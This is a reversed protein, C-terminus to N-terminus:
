GYRLGLKKLRAMPKPYCNSWDWGKQDLERDLYRWLSVKYVQKWAKNLKILQADSLPMIINNVTTTECYFNPVGITVTLKVIDSKPNYSDASSGGGSSGGGSSGGGNPSSNEPPKAAICKKKKKDWKGGADTCIKINDKRKKNSIALLVIMFITLGIALSMLKIGTKRNKNM